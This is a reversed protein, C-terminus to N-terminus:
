KKLRVNLEPVLLDTWLQYGAQSLHLSDTVFLASIPREAEGLMPTATDVYYLYTENECFEKIRNNAELMAPWVHWRDPSPKIPLYIIETAPLKEHVTQTFKVFDSFVTAPGKGDAIDNDGCYFVILVPKFKLVLIDIFYNVDSIHSGGFGRNIVPLEPFFDHTRWLRISSSGIFLVPRAPSANKSDWRIFTDIEERFREPDPNEGGSFFLWSLSILLWLMTIRLHLIRMNIRM